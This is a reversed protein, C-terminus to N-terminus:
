LMGDGPREEQRPASVSESPGAPQSLRGHRTGLVGEDNRSTNRDDAKPASTSCAQRPTGRISTTQPKCEFAIWESTTELSTLLRLASFVGACLVKTEIYLSKTAKYFINLARYNALEKFPNRTASRNELRRKERMLRTMRSYPNPVFLFYYVFETHKSRVTEIFEDSQGLSACM